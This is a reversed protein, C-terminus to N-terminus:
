HASRFSKLFLNKLILKVKSFFNNKSSLGRKLNKSILNEIKKIYAENTEEKIAFDIKKNSNLKIIQHFPKKTNTSERGFGINRTYSLLPTLNQAKNLFITANWFVGWSNLHGKYNRLLQSWNTLKYNLTFKKKSEENFKDILFKANLNLNKWNKKHTGWGWCFMLDSLIVKNKDKSSVQIPYNWAGVHWIEKKNEIYDLSDNMFKLFYKSTIIDDELVIIKDYRQLIYNIGWVINKKLGKNNNFYFKKKINLNSSNIIKRVTNVKKIDTSNEKAGDSFIFIDTKDLLFNKKLYKITIELERPRNYVFLALPATTKM